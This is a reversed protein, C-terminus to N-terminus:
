VGGIGTHGPLPEKDLKRADDSGRLALFGWCDFM